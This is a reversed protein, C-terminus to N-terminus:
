IKISTKMMSLSLLGFIERVVFVVDVKLQQILSFFIHNFICREFWTIMKRHISLKQVFENHLTPVKPHFREIM